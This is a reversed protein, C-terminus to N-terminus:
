KLSYLFNSEFCWSHSCVLYFSKIGLRVGNKSLASEPFYLHTLGSPVYRPHTPPPPSIGALHRRCGPRQNQHGGSGNQPPCPGTRLDVGSCVTSNDLTFMESCKVVILTTLVCFFVLNSFFLLFM